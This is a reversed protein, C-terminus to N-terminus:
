KKKIEKAFEELQADFIEVARLAIEKVSLQGWSEIYFAIENKDYTIEAGAKETLELNAENLLAKIANPKNLSIKDAKFEAKDKECLIIENGKKLKPMFKYYVHAASWKAHQRGQGLCATADFELEQNKLLKAIPMETYIPKVDVDKIKLESAYVIGPGKAKLSMKVQCKACGEGKCSCESPLVYTKLDTKLPLLGLRNGIMEDYLASSNKKLEVDEIALVPVEDTMMRRMTNAYSVPVDKWIFAITNKDKSKDFVEIQMKYEGEEREARREAPTM